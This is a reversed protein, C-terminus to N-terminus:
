WDAKFFLWVSFYAHPRHFHFCQLQDCTRCHVALSLPFMSAPQTRVSYVPHTSNSVNFSVM